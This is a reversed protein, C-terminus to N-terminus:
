RGAGDAIADLQVYVAEVTEQTPGTANCATCYWQPGCPSHVQTRVAVEACCYPCPYIRRVQKTATSAASVAEVAAAVSTVLDTYRRQTQTLAMGCEELLMSCVFLKEAVEALTASDSM